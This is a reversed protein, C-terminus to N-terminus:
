INHICDSAVLVSKIFRFYVLGFQARFTRSKSIPFLSPPCTFTIDKIDRLYIDVIFASILGRSVHSKSSNYTFSYSHFEPLSNSQVDKPFTPYLCPTASSEPISDIM